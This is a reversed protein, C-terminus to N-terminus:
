GEMMINALEVLADNTETILGALEVLADDDANFRTDINGKDPTYYDLSRSHKDILYWDYCLGESEDSRYKELIEFTDTINCDSYSRKITIIDKYDSHHEGVTKLSEIISGNRKTAGFVHEM